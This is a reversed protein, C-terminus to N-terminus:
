EVFLGTLRLSGVPKDEIGGMGPSFNGQGPGSGIGGPVWGGHGFCVGVGVGHGGSGVGSGGGVGQGPILDELHKRPHKAM